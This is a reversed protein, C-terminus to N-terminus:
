RDVMTFKAAFDISEPNDTTSVIQVDAGEIEEDSFGLASLQEALEDFQEGWVSLFYDAGSDSEIGWLGASELLPGVQSTHEGHVFEVHAVARLGVCYWTEGYNALREADEAEYRAREDADSVDSYRGSDADLWSNDADADEYTHLTIGRIQAKM